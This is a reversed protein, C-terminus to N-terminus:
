WPTTSSSAGYESPAHSPERSRTLRRGRARLPPALITTAIVTFILAGYLEQGIVGERLGIAAFILGVEGRPLMGLGILLKDSPSRMAGIGALIRSGRIGQDCPNLFPPDAHSARPMHCHAMWSPHDIDPWIREGTPQGGALFM